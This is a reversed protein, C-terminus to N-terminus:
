EGELVVLRGDRIETLVGNRVFQRPGGM